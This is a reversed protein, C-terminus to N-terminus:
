FRQLIINTHLKGASGFPEVGLAAAIGGAVWALGTTLPVWGEM